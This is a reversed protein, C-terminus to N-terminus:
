SEPDTPHIRITRDEEASRLCADLVHQIEAGRAFTPQEPKGTLISRIFREQITPVTGCDLTEWGTDKRDLVRNIKLQNQSANLDIEISARSGYLYLQISNRNPYAWRSTHLTGLAGNTFEATIVASDNADLTYGDVNSGEDKEFSKLRCHVSALTGLPMSAFDLLHIGVDALVGGSGHAKSLRWLLSPSKRWDGWYDHVLWSQLYNAHVHRITGLEGCAVLECAKQIAPSNRYTFHVMNIRDAKEAADRMEVTQAHDLGLPKECLVHKGESLAQLALPHHTPDPTVIAVADFRSKAFLEDADTYIERIGHEAAFESAREARIECAAVVECGSVARFARVHFGAM